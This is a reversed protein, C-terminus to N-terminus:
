ALLSSMKTGFGDSTLAIANAGKTNMTSPRCDARTFLAWTNRPMLPAILSLPYESVSIISSEWARPTNRFDHFCIPQGSILNTM